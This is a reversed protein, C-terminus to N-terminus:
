PQIHCGVQIYKTEVIRSIHNRNGIRTHHERSHLGVVERTQRGDISIHLCSVLRHVLLHLHRHENSRRHQHSQDNEQRDQYRQEEAHLEHRHHRHCLDSYQRHKELGHRQRRSVDRQCAAIRQHEQKKLASIEHHEHKEDDEAVLMPSKHSRTHGDSQCIDKVEHHDVGDGSPAITVFHRRGHHLITGNMDEDSQQGIESGDRDATISIPDESDTQCEDAQHERQKDKM